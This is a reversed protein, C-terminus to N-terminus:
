SARCSGKPMMRYHRRIKREKLRLNKSGWSVRWTMLTSKHHTLRRIRRSLKTEWSKLRSMSDKSTPFRAIRSIKSSILSTSRSFTMTRTSNITKKRCANLKLSQKKAYVITWTSSNTWISLSKRRLVVFLSLIRSSARRLKLRIKCTGLTSRHSLRKSIMAWRPRVTIGWTSM